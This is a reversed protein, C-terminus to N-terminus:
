GIEPPDGSGSKAEATFFSIRGNTELVALRVDGFRDIGQNRAATMLDDLSMRVSRLADLLPEGGEM